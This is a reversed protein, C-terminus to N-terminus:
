VSKLRVDVALAHLQDFQSRDAVCALSGPLDSVEQHLHELARMAVVIQRREIEDGFYLADLLADLPAIVQEIHRSRERARRRVHADLRDHLVAAQNDIEDALTFDNM